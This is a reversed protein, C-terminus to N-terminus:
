KYFGAMEKYIYIYIYIYVCMLFSSVSSLLSVRALSCRSVVSFRYHHLLPVLSVLSLFAFNMEAVVAGAM